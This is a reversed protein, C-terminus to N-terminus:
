RENKEGGFNALAILVAATERLASDNLVGRWFAYVEKEEDSMNEEKKESLRKMAKKEIAKIRAQTISRCLEIEEPTLSYDDDDFM